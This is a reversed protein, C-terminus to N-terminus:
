LLTAKQHCWPCLWRTAVPDFGRGCYECSRTQNAYVVCYTVVSGIIMVGGFSLAIGGNRKARAASGQEPLNDYYSSEGVKEGHEYAICTDGPNMENGNCRAKDDGPVFFFIGGYVALGWGILFAWSILEKRLKPSM